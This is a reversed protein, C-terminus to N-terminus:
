WQGRATPRAGSLAAPRDRVVFVAGAMVPAAAKCLLVDHGLHEVFQDRQQAEFGDFLVQEAADALVQAEALQEAALHEALGKRGGALRHLRLAVHMGEVAVEQTRAVGAQRHDVRHVPHAIAAAEAGAADGRDLLALLDEGAARGELLVFFAELMLQGHGLHRPRLVQRALQFQRLLIRVQQGLAHAVLEEAGLGDLDARDGHPVREVRTRALRHRVDPEAGVAAKRVDRRDVLVDEGVSRVEAQQGGGHEGVAHRDPLPEHLHGAEVM